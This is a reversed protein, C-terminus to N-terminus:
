NIKVIGGQVIVMGDGNVKTMAGKIEVMASGEVSIKIGKVTVGAQDIKISNGGVKFEISQMATTEAKGVKVATTQNGQAVELSDNGTKITTTRDKSITVTQSGSKSGEGVTVNQHNYVEVTQDGPDKKDFGVKLTDNNEVVRNFDKEAHFYIEEADKKDEFRLENFNEATGKKTSRTKIGSKTQEGPLEYPFANDKNYVRGIIIPYDPDGGLFDVIVEEGVRPMQFAGFGGGAWPQSVRVWCSSNENSQGDRDWQFQVKVRGYEDVWHEEGSKGVVIATQPGPMHGRRTVCAARFPEAAPMVELHSSFPDAGAGPDLTLAYSAAVILYKRNQDERPHGELTFLDGAGLAHINGDLHVRDHEAALEEMRRAVYHEGDGRERYHDAYEYREYTGHAHQKPAERRVLLDAKPRTFDYAKFVVAGPQVSRSARLGYIHDRDRRNSDGPGFYPITESGGVESHSSQDDALVLDHRNEGHAFYFYIGEEATLRSIFDLDSEGYQVCFERKRYDGSLRDTVDSFGHDKLVSKVIDPVSQEQFIRCNSSRTLFWLFPRVVARYGAQRLDGPVQEFTCVYGHLHRESEDTGFAVTVEEGLIRDFDVDTDSRLHLECEFPQGLQERLDMRHCAMSADGTSDATLSIHWNPM